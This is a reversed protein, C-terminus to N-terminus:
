LDAMFSSERGKILRQTKDGVNNIILLFIYIKLIIMMIQERHKNGSSLDPLVKLLHETKLFYGNLTFFPFTKLQIWINHGVM